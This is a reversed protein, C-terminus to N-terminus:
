YTEIIEKIREANREQVKERREYLHTKAKKGSQSMQTFSDMSQRAAGEVLEGEFNMERKVKPPEPDAAYAPGPLSLCLFLFLAMSLRM